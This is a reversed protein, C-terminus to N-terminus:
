RSSFDVLLVALEALIALLIATEIWVEVLYNRHEIMRDNALEYLDEGVEIADDLVRVRSILDAQLALEGFLRRTATSLKPEPRQLAIDMRAVFIRATKFQRTMRNVRSQERLATRQVDHTLAADNTMSQWTTELRSEEASLAGYVHSFVAAAALCDEAAQVPAFALGRRGRWVLRVNRGSVDLYPATTDGESVWTEFEKQVDFPTEIGPLLHVFTLFTETDSPAPVGSLPERMLELSTPHQLTLWVNSDSPTAQRVRWIAPKYAEQSTM